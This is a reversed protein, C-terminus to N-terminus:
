KLEDYRKLFLREARKPSLPIIRKPLPAYINSERWTEPPSTMLDRMETVLLIKDAKHIEEKNYNKINFHELIVNLIKNEISNIGKLDKKVPEIIDGIYSEPADHFLAALAQENKVIESVLVSHQAVSYFMKCQGNFRCQLSLSHALDIIDIEEPRPDFPWFKKGTYTQM